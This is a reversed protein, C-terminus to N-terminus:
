PDSTNSVYASQLAQEMRAIEDASL